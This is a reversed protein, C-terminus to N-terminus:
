MLDEWFYSDELARTMQTNMHLWNGLQAGYQDVETNLDSSPGFCEPTWGATGNFSTGMITAQSPLNSTPTMAAAQQHAPSPILSSPTAWRGFSVDAKSSKAELYKCAADYLAKFLHLERKAGSSFLDTSAAQLTEIICNVYSELFDEELRTVVSMCEKHAELARRASNICEHGFITGQNPEAPIARYILCLLSLHIVKGTCVFAELSGNGIAQRMAELYRIESAEVNTTHAELELALSRARITRSAQPEILAAPSYLQDYVKGQLRALETMKQLRGFYAIESRSDTDPVPITIDSDRFTSSRGLRLSLGKEFIYILWFVRIQHMRTEPNIASMSVISHIGLTQSMHSATAIFNWAASPKCMELCYVGAIMMAFTAEPTSPQHFPLNALITELNDRCITAQEAFDAKEDPNTTANKCERFLWYLGANVVILDTHTAEGPSYVKLFYETFASVSNAEHNWFFRVRPNEKAMRLCIFAIGVPPMPLNRLTLGRELPRAHPYLYDQEKQCSNRGLAKRLSELVTTMEVTISAGVPKNIVAYELFRNAFTAQASLSSEGQHEVGPTLLASGVRSAPSTPTAFSKEVTPEITPIPAPGTLPITSPADTQSRGQIAGLTNGFEELKKAIDDIKKEYEESIFVRKRREKPKHREVAVAIVSSASLSVTSLPRNNDGEQQEDQHADEIEQGSALSAEDDEPVMQM